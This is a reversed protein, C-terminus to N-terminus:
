RLASLGTVMEKAIFRIIELVLSSSKASCGPAEAQFTRSQFINVLLPSSRFLNGDCGQRSEDTAHLVFPLDITVVFKLFRNLWIVWLQLGFM